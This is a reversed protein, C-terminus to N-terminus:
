TEFSPYDNRYLGFSFNAVMLSVSLTGMVLLKKKKEKENEFRLISYLKPKSLPIITGTCVLLFIQWWWLSLCHVWLWYIKKKKEKENEFRLISYLKPKSLPIIMGICVLLFFAQSLSLSNVQSYAQWLRIECWWWVQYFGLHWIERDFTWVWELKWRKEAVGYVCLNFSHTGFWCISDEEWLINKYFCFGM